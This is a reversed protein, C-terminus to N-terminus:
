FLNIKCQCLYVMCLGWLLARTYCNNNAKWSGVTLWFFEGQLAPFVSPIKNLTWSQAPLFGFRSGQPHFSRQLSLGQKLEAGRSLAMNRSGTKSSIYFCSWAYCHIKKSHLDMPNAGEVLSGSPLSFSFSEPTLCSLRGPQWVTGGVVQCFQTICCWHCLIHRASSCVLKVTWGPKGM